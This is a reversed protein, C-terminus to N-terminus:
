FRLTMDFGYQWIGRKTGNDFADAQWNRYYGIEPRVQFLANFNHSLGIAHSTYTGRTGTRFGSDDVYVENRVTLYDQQSLAFETYNLVGWAQTYGPILTGDGGGGGFPEIPGVSPTGGIEANREWMYYAETKTSSRRQHGPAGVHDRRLQFQRAGVAPRVGPLPPVRRQQDRQALHLVRRQQDGVWRVGFAGTLLCGKYWPAMDTGATIVGQVMWQDNIKQTVM